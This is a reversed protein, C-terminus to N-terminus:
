VSGRRTLLGVVWLVLFLVFAVKAITAAMGALTGFGLVAAILAIVLFVLTWHLMTTTTQNLIGIAPPIGYAEPRAAARPVLPNGSLCRVERALDLAGSQGNQM